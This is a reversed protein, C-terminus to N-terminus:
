DQAFVQHYVRGQFRTMVQAIQARVAQRTPTALAAEMAALDTFHLDFVAYIPPTGADAQVLRRLYVGQIGPYTRIADVVPGALQADFAARDAEAVSGELFASRVIM